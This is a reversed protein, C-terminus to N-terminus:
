LGMQLLSLWGVPRVTRHPPATTWATENFMESTNRIRVFLRQIRLGATGPSLKSQFVGRSAYYDLRGERHHVLAYGVHRGEPDYPDLGKTALAPSTLGVILAVALAVSRLASM